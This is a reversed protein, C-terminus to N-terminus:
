YGALAEDIEAKYRDIIGDAIQEIEGEIASTDVIEDVKSAFYSELAEEVERSKDDITPDIKEEVKADISADVNDLLETKKNYGAAGIDKSAKGMVKTIVDSSAEVFGGATFSVLAVIVLTLTLIKNSKRM